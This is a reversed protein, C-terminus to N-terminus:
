PHWRSLSRGWRVMGAIRLPAGLIPWSRSNLTEAPSAPCRGAASLSYGYVEIPWAPWRNLRAPGPARAEPALAGRSDKAKAPSNSREDHRQVSGNQDQQVVLQFDDLSTGTQNAPRQPAVKRTWDIGQAVQNLQPPPPVGPEPNAIEMKCVGSLRQIRFTAERPVGGDSLQLLIEQFSPAEFRDESVLDIDDVVWAGDV